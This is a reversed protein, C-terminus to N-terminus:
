FIKFFRIISNRSSLRLNLLIASNKWLAHIELAFQRLEPDEIAILYEPEDNWDEMTGEPCEEIDSGEVDFYEDVFARLADRDDITIQSPIPFKQNFANIIEEPDKKMPKDVFIKSRQFYWPLAVTTSTIIERSPLLNRRKLDNMDNTTTATKPSIIEKVKKKGKVAKVMM